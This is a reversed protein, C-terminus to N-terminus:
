EFMATFNSSFKIPLSLCASLTMVDKHTFYKSHSIQIALKFFTSRDVMPREQSLCTSADITELSNIEAQKPKTAQRLNDANAVCVLLNVTQGRSTM